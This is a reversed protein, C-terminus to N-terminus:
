FGGRERSVNRQVSEFVENFMKGQKEECLPHDVITTYLGCDKLDKRPCKNCNPEKRRKSFLKM